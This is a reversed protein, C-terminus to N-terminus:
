GEPHNVSTTLSTWGSLLLPSGSLSLNAGLRQTHNAVLRQVAASVSPPGMNGVGDFERKM